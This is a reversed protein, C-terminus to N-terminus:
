DKPCLGIIVFLAKRSKLELKGVLTRRPPGLPIRVWSV